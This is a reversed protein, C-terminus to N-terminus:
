LHSSLDTTPHPPARTLSLGQAVLPLTHRHGKLTVRLHAQPLPLLFGLTPLADPAPPQTSAPACSHKCLGVTVPHQPSLVAAAVCQVLLALSVGLVFFFLRWWHRRAFGPM